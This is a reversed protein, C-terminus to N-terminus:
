ICWSSLLGDCIKHSLIDTNSGSKECPSTSTARIRSLFLAHNQEFTNCIHAFRGSSIYRWLVDWGTVRGITKTGGIKEFIVKVM